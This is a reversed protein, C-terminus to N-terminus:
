QGAPPEPTDKPKSSDNVVFKGVVNAGFMLGALSVIAAVAATFVSIIGASFACSITLAVIAGLCFILVTGKRELLKFFDM